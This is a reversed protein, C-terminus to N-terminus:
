KSNLETILKYLNQYKIGLYSALEKLSFKSRDIEKLRNIIRKSRPYVGLDERIKYITHRTVDYKKALEIDKAYYFQHNPDEFIEKLEARAIKARDFGGIRRCSKKETM